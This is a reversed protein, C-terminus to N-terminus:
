LDSDFCHKKKYIIWVLDLYTSSFFLQLVNNKESQKGVLISGSYQITFEM